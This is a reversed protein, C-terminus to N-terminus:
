RAIDIDFNIKDLATKVNLKHLYSNSLPLCILDNLPLFFQLSGIECKPITSLDDIVTCQFRTSVGDIYINIPDLM